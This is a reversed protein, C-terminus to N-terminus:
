DFGLAPLREWRTGEAHRQDILSTIDERNAPLTAAGPPVFIANEFLYPTERGKPVELVILKKGDVRDVNVSWPARPSIHDPLGERLREAVSDANEVGVVQGREKAGIILTGGMSNLFSCVVRGVSGLDPAREKFEVRDSEGTAILQQLYTSTIKKSM